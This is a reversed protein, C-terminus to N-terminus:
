ADAIAVLAVIRKGGGARRRIFCAYALADATMLDRGIASSQDPTGTHVPTRDRDACTITLLNREVALTIEAAGPAQRLVSTLLESVILVADDISQAPLGMDTLKRFTWTRAASVTDPRVTPTTWVCATSHAYTALSLLTVAKYDHGPAYETPHPSTGDARSSAHHHRGGCWTEVCRVM